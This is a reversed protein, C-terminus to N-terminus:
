ESLIRVRAQSNAFAAVLIQKALRFFSTEPLHVPFFFFFFFFVLFVVSFFFM